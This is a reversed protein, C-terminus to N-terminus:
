PREKIKKSWIAIDEDINPNYSKYNHLHGFVFHDTKCLTALNNLDLELAPDLHFPKKHHVQLNKTTGCIECCPHLELYHKRVTPWKNSREAGGYPPVQHEEPQSITFNHNTGSNNLHEEFQHEEPQPVKFNHNTGSNNLYLITGFTIAITTLVLIKGLKTM